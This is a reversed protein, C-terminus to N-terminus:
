RAKTKWRRQLRALSLGAGRDMEAIAKRMLRRVKPHRALVYDELDEESFALITAVPRGHRTVIAPEGNEVRRLIDPTRDRLERIGVIGM